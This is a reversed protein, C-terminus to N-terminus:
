DDPMRRAYIGVVRAILVAVYLVGIVGEMAALSQAQATVPTIDGFGITTLTMFSFYILTRWRVKVLEGVDVNIVFSGPHLTEILDYLSGFTMGVLLYVCVTGYMTDATVRRTKIVELFVAVTLFAYFASFTAEVVPHGRAGGAFATASAAATALALALAMRFTWRHARVAYVGGTLALLSAVGGLFAGTRTNEFYPYGILLAALAILLLWFRPVPQEAADVPVENATMGSSEHVGHYVSESRTACSM